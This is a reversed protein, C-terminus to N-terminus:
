PTAPTPVPTPAPHARRWSQLVRRANGSCIMGAVDAGYHATLEPELAGLRDPTELGPLTPKIFGDQDSGLGTFEHSGSVDHIHDIHRCITAVTDQWNKPTPGGSAMYHSCAILGIIGRRRAIARIQDDSLSYELGGFRCAGHSVIVPVSAAPDLVDMLKMTDDFSTPTMHTVDVLIGNAVMAAIAAQGLAFVGQKPEPFLWRYTGDALFPLAPANTAVQRWFLHALTIYAVGRQALEAVSRAVMEVTDGLHFGGEIAHVLVHKGAALVADLSAPDRALAFDAHRAPSAEVIDMQVLLDRFYVPRPKDGYALSLDMEDFPCYLVSLAVRVGSGRLTDVTVAPGGNPGQWNGIGSAVRLAWARVANQLPHKLAGMGAKAKAPDQAALHMPYHPHLDIIM